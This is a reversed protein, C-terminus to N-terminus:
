NNQPHTREFPVSYTSNKLNNAFGSLPTTKAPLFNANVNSSFRTYVVKAGVAQSPFVYALRM